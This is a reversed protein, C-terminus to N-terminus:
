FVVKFILDEGDCKVTIQTIGPNAVYYAGIASVLSYNPDGVTDGYHSSERWNSGKLGLTEDWKYTKSNFVIQQVGGARYLAGLFRALDNVMNANAEAASNYTTTITNGTISQKGTYTFDSYEFNAAAEVPFQHVYYTLEGGVTYVATSPNAKAISKVDAYSVAANNKVERYIGDSELMWIKSEGDMLWKPSNDVIKWAGSTKEIAQPNVFYYDTADAQEWETAGAKMLLKTANNYYYKDAELAPVVTTFGLFNDQIQNLKSITTLSVKELANAPLDVEEKDAATNWDTVVADFKVTTMGLNLHFDTAVGEKAEFVESSTIRNNIISKEGDLKSDETIVDYDIVIQFKAGPIMMVYLNENDAGDDGLLPLEATADALTLGNQVTPGFNKNLEYEGTLATQADWTGDYLRLVGTTAFNGALKVSNIKVRTGPKINQNRDGSENHQTDDPYNDTIADNWVQVNFGYRAMAHRFNFKIKDTVSPKTKNVPAKYPNDVSTGTGYEAGWCLDVAKTFNEPMTYQIAPGNYAGNYILRCAATTPQHSLSADYAAYAYFSLMEGPNNPWYKVESNKDYGTTTKDYVWGKGSSIVRENLFFNPVISKKTYDQIYETGQAYAYVGFGKDTIGNMTASSEMGTLMTNARSDRGLYSDFAVPIGDGDAVSDKVIEDSSCSSLALAATAAMFLYKKM